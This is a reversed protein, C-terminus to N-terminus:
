VRAGRRMWDGVTEPATSGGGLDRRRWRWPLARQAARGADVLPSVCSTLRELGQSASRTRESPSYGPVRAARTAKLLTVSRLSAKGRDYGTSGCM